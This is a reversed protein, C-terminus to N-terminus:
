ASRSTTRAQGTTSWKTGKNRTIKHAVLQTGDPAEGQCARTFEDERVEGSLGLQVSGKGIWRSPEGGRLYYDERSFYRAAHVASMGGNSLSLM